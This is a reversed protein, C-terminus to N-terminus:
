KVRTRNTKLFNLVTFNSKHTKRMKSRDETTIWVNNSTPKRLLNFLSSGFLFFIWLPLWQLKSFYFLETNCRSYRLPDQQAPSNRLDRIRICRYIQTSVCSTLQQMENIQLSRLTIKKKRKMLYSHCSIYRTSRSFLTTCYKLTVENVHVEHSIQQHVNRM